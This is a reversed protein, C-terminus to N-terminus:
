CSKIVVQLVKANYRYFDPVTRLASIVPSGTEPSLESFWILGIQLTMNLGKVDYYVPREEMANELVIIQNLLCIFDYGREVNSAWCLLEPDLHDRMKITLLLQDLDAGLMSVNGILSNTELIDVALVTTTM